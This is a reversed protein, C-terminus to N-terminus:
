EIWSNYCLIEFKAETAVGSILLSRRTSESIESIVIGYFNRGFHVCMELLENLDEIDIEYFYDRGNYVCEKNWGIIKWKIKKYVREETNSLDTSSSILFKM